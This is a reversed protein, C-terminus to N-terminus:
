KILQQFIECDHAASHQNLKQSADIGMENQKAKSEGATCEKAQIREASKKFVFFFSRLLLLLVTSKTFLKKIRMKEAKEQKLLIFLTRHDDTM